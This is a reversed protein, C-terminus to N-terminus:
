NLADHVMHMYTDKASKAKALFDAHELWEYASHEWSMIINPRTNVNAKFLSYHTGHVSYETGAYVLEVSTPEVVLSAEELVERLMTQLPEEGDELTGGPLDPDPGFVPHNSRYMMLYKDQNDVVVLKAVQKMYVWYLM